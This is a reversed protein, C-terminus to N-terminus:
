LNICAPSTAWTYPPEVSSRTRNMGLPECIRERVYADWPQGTVARIVEGAAVFMLNFYGYGARYEFDQPM